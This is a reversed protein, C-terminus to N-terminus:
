PAGSYLQQGNKKFDTIVKQGNAGVAWKAFEYAITQNQATKSVVLHAPNLLPDNEDDNAAKFIVTQNAVSAPLSLYTGRDTLTYEKLLISTTLAQIPFAIYQHYWTSYPTAWPVQGIGLWLQSEKINTASKDYRSLFRTPVTTNVSNRDAAQFLNAFLTLIDMSGNIKAPNEPPGTILFHDRFIYYTTPNIIGQDGAIKEASPSYTIGVDADGSQLYKITFTTDSLVWAVRFPSSGNKVSEMIFADALAKVLGSQGAGGNGIRLTIPSTSSSFGGDYIAAPEIAAIACSILWFFALLVSRLNIPPM